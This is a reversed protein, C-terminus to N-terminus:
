GTTIVLRGDALPALQQPPEYLAGHGKLDIKLGPITTVDGLDSRAIQFKPDVRWEARPRATEGALPWAAAVAFVRFEDDKPKAGPKGDLTQPLQVSPPALLAILEKGDLSFAASHIPQAHKFERGPEGTATNWLRCTIGDGAAVTTADPSLAAWST